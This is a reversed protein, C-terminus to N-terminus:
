STAFKLVKYAEYNQIGAGVRKTTYFSVFPKNSYPDRLIRVGIRDVILYARKFNGFAISYSSAGIDAMDEAIECAYGNLLDPMGAQMSPQWIYEGNQDKFKRVAGRTKRNMLYSAGNLYAVKLATQLDILNDNPNATASQTVFAGAAGTAVYGVKGHAQNADAVFTAGMLGRPKTSGDGNVFAAGEQEAFTIAVEEALWGEVDFSGDDLMTQTAAPNAYLEMTPFEMMSIKPSNTESRSSTESVWGGTAGGANWPKKLVSGSIQRVTALRRIPSVQSVVREMASDLEPTVLYGGDPDSGVSLAKAELDHLSSEAGKRMYELFAAKHKKREETIPVGKSDLIQTRKSEVLMADVRSKHEDLAANIKDLKEDLLPDNSAGTRNKLSKEVENLRQDNSSKFENWDKMLNELGEKIEAIPAEKIELDAPRENGTM